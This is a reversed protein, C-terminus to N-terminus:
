WGQNDNNDYEVLNGLLSLADKIPYSNYRNEPQNMLDKYCNVVKNILKDGDVNQFLENMWSLYTQGNTGTTIYGILKSFFEDSEGNIYRNFEDIDKIKLALGLPLYFSSYLIFMNKDFSNSLRIYKTSINYMNIFSNCERLSFKYYNILIRAIRNSLYDTVIFDLYYTLYNEINKLNLSLVTDYMKNLYSYGDFSSGYFHKVCQSLQSNNTVVLTTINKYSYFHKISELIKVAYDPKCRDLEDIILLIRTNDDTLLDFIKFLDKKKEETTNISNSLEEFSKINEFVDKPIFGLTGKEILNTLFPKVITDFKQNKEKIDKKYKPYVDLINYILSEVVDEHDDNEWANYYIPIYKNRFNEILEKDYPDNVLDFNEDKYCLYMLQEVFFTKGVGWDGDLSITYNTDISNLLRILKFLLPKRGLVDNQLTRRINDDNILLENKKM